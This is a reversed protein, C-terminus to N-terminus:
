AQGPASRGRTRVRRTPPAPPTPPPALGAYRRRYTEALEAVAVMDQAATDLGRRGADTLQYIRRAPGREALDWTSAVLGADDLKRLEAYTPGPKGDWDFGFCRLREVLEYGHSEREGLLLLLCPTLLSRPRRAEGNLIEM